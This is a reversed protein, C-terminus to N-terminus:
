RPMMSRDMGPFTYARTSRRLNTVNASVIRDSFWCPKRLPRLQESAMKVTRRSISIDCSCRHAGEMDRKNVEGLRVVRDESVLQPGNKM